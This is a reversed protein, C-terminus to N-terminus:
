KVEKLEIELKKELETSEPKFNKDLYNQKATELDMFKDLGRVIFEDLTWKYKWFYRPDSLIHAYNDIAQLIDKETYGNALRFEIHRKCSDTLYRHEIIHKSNWFAIYINKVNNCEKCEQKHNSSPQLKTLEQNSQQESVQNAYNKPNQYTDYKCITIISFLSTTEITLFNTSKLVKLASRVSQEGVGSITSLTKRGTVLQGRMIVMEQKTLKNYWNNPKHNALTLLTIMVIKGKENLAKWSPSDLIKRALIIYGGTIKM